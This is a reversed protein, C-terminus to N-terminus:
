SWTDDGYNMKTLPAKQGNVPIQLLWGLANAIATGVRLGTFSGPGTSVEIGTIDGCTLHNESLLSELLPLVHQSTHFQSTHTKECIEKGIRLSVRTETIQSTDIILITNKKQRITNDHRVQRGASAKAFSPDPMEYSEPEYAPIVSNITNKM